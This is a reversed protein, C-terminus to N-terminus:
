FWYLCVEVGEGGEVVVAGEEAMQHARQLVFEVILLHLIQIISFQIYVM